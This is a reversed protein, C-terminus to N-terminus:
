LSYEASIWHRRMAGIAVEWTSVETQPARRIETIGVRITWQLAHLIAKLFRPEWSGVCGLGSAEM